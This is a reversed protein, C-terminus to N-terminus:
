NSEERIPRQAQSRECHFCNVKLSIKIAMALCGTRAAMNARLSCVSGTNATPIVPHLAVLEM